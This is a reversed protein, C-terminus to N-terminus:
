GDTGRSGDAPAARAAVRADYTPRESRIPPLASFNHHPPPSSTYWELSYGGWPDDGAPAGRGMWVSRVVNVVFLLTAGAIVFAGVTSLVNLPMWDANAYDAIRRAMGEAGLFHQPFFTLNFGLMLLWFHAKGWREDLLRGSMKPIWFYFAAFAAFASGGFLVYHMHAVVFYSDHVQYDLPPSALIVGTIGGMLFQFLFGIVFLMPTDFRIRGRWMTAIWTFFKVGTPIAILFSMIAFFLNSVAGTTFMHHAWVSFSYAGILITAFVLARYGFIRKGSFVPVVESVVGFFPLAMIYVEPHGFFWFLHQWLISSGGAAPDFFTAGTTREIFLMVLAATLVPFTLIILLSTVLINWTFIPVRFMTMGPARLTFLTAIFNVAGLIGSTGSLILGMVWLDGGAGPSYTQTSLPPYGYWGFAAAGGATAFGSFAVLGGLLFLWYTLANLRPFAVDPAGIQLPLLYNAFGIALPVISFFIMGTGHMTFLQNYTAEDVVQLGPAALELRMVLALVGGVVLFGMATVLYM